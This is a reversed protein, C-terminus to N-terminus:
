ITKREIKEIKNIIWIPSFENKYNYDITERKKIWDFDIQYSKDFIKMYKENYFPLKTINKNNTLLKKNLVVAEYFRLSQSNQDKQLFEIICNSNAVKKLVNKYAISEEYVKFHKDYFNIKRGIKKLSMLNLM